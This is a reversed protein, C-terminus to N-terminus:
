YRNPFQLSIRGESHPTDTYARRRGYPKGWTPSTPMPRPEPKAASCCGLPPAYRAMGMPACEFGEGRAEKRGEKDRICTIRSLSVQSHQHDSKLQTQIQGETDDFILHNSRGATLHLDDPITLQLEYALLANLGERGSLSVPVLAPQGLIEPIAPRSVHLTRSQHLSAM